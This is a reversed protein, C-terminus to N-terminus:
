RISFTAGSITFKDAEDMIEGRVTGGNPSTFDLYYTGSYEPGAETIAAEELGIKSYTFNTYSSKGSNGSSFYYTDSGHANSVAGTVDTRTAGNLNIVIRKGKVTKPSEYVGCNSESAGLKLLTKEADKQGYLKAAGLATRGMMDKAELQAGKSLLYRLMETQGAAAAGYLPTKGTLTTANIDGGEALGAEFASIDGHAAANYLGSSCSILTM